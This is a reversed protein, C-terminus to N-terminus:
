KALLGYTGTTRAGPAYCLAIGARCHFGLDKETGLHEICHRLNGKIVLLLVYEYLEDCSTSIWRYPVDKGSDFTAMM